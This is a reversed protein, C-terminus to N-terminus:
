GVMQHPTGGRRKGPRLLRLRPHPLDHGLPWWSLLRHPRVPPNSTPVSDPLHATGQAPAGHAQAALSRGELPPILNTTSLGFYELIAPAVDKRDGARTPGKRNTALFTEPSQHHEFGGEDMGHDTTVFIATRDSIGLDKLRGVIRGLWADVTMLAKDYAASNEGHLHGQEDPDEFHFFAFLRRDRYKELLALARPGVNEASGLGVEHDDFAERAHFFPEGERPVWRPPKGDRTTLKENPLRAHDKDQYSSQRHTIADRGFCNECVEHPGRSGINYSKGGIFITALQGPGFHAKLREFVTLGKPIPQYDRNSTIGLSLANYGTLIETWGSKTQTPGTTVQTPVFAGQDTLAKLHPLKGARLLELLHERQTGDWGILILNRPAAFEREQSISDPPWVLLLAAALVLGPWNLPPPQFKTELIGRPVVRQNDCASMDRLTHRLRAPDLM